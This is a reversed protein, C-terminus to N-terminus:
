SYLPSHSITNLSLTLIDKKSLINSIITKKLKHKPNNYIHTEHNLSHFMIGLLLYILLYFQLYLCSM